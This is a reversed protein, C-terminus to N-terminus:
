NAKIFSTIGDKKLRLRMSVAEARSEFKGVKLLFLQQDSTPPEIFCQDYGKSKLMKVKAEAQERQRFAGVQVSYTTKVEPLQNQVAAASRSAGSAAVDGESKPPTAEKAPAGATKDLGKSGAAARNNVSKYWDLQEKASREEGPKNGSGGVAAKADRAEGESTPAANRTAEQVGQRKGEIFGLVFFCGCITILLAFAVILKRNDLVLELGSEPARNEM